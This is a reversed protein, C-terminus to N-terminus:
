LQTIRTKRTTMRLKDCFDHLHDYMQIWFPALDPGLFFISCSLWVYHIFNIQLILLIWRNFLEFTSNVFSVINNFLVEMPSQFIIKWSSLYGQIMQWGKRLLIFLYSYCTLIVYRWYIKHYWLKEEKFHM